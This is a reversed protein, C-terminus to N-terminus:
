NGNICRRAMISSTYKQSMSFTDLRPEAADIRATIVKIHHIIIYIFGYDSFM